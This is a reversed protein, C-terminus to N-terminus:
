QSTLDYNVIRKKKILKILKKYKRKKKILKILKKISVAQFIFPM